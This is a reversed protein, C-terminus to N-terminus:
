FFDFKVLYFIHINTLIVSNHIYYLLITTYNLTCLYDGIYMHQRWCFVFLSYVIMIISCILWCLNQVLQAINYIHSIQATYHAEVRRTTATVRRAALRFIARERMEDWHEALLACVCHFHFLLFNDGELSVCKGFSSAPFCRTFKAHM